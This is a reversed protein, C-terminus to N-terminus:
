PVLKLTGFQGPKKWAPDTGLGPTWELYGKRDSGDDDNVMFDFGLTQNVALASVGLDPLPLRIEYTTTTAKRKVAFTHQMAPAGTPAFWRQRIAQEGSLAWGYEFDDTTDYTNGGNRAMDLGIQVSDGRWLNGTDGAHTNRHIDDTVEFALYLAGADWRAATKCSIDSAGSASGGMSVWYAPAAITLWGAASWDGLVGDVAISPAPLAYLTNPPPALDPALDALPRAEHDSIPSDGISDAHDAAAVFGSRDFTCGATGLLGFLSILVARM